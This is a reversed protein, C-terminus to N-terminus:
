VFSRSILSLYKGKENRKSHLGFIVFLEFEKLKKNKGVANLCAENVKQCFFDRLKRFCTKFVLQGEENHLCQLFLM